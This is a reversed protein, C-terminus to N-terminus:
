SIIHGTNTALSIDQRKYVDLHTYSVATARLLVEQLKMAREAPTRPYNEMSGRM